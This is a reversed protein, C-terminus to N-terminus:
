ASPRYPIRDETKQYKMINSLTGYDSVKHINRGLEQQLVSRVTEISPTQSSRTRLWGTFRDCIMVHKLMKFSVEIKFRCSYAVIGIITAIGRMETRIVMGVVIIVFWGFIEESKFCICFQQLIEGILKLM